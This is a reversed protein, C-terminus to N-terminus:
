RNQNLWVDVEGLVVEYGAERGDGEARAATDPGESSRASRILPQLFADDAPDRVIGTDRTNAEAAGFFRLALAAEGMSAALGSAVELASQGVPMSRTRRAIAIIERLASRAESYAARAVYTMALNLLGIAVLEMDDLRRGLTVVEDYLPEAAAVDGDARHMQAVANLASALKRQDGAQRALALAEEAHGRAAELRGRGLEAFGLSELTAIIQERDGLERAIALSEELFRTAEDYEGAFSCFLGAASLAVSRQKDRMQAGPHLLAETTVRKGLPLLGSRFWYMQMSNALRLGKAGAGASCGCYSHASLLNEQELDLRARWVPQDPGNQHSEAAEALTLHFDLHRECAASEEGSAELKERAYSRITELLRYRGGDPEVAVLSKDVLSAFLALVDRKDVGEGTSVAEAGDMTWGGAFVSLRRFVAREQLSLLDHSWDILARLTQQRPLATRSGTSLLRFRDNLRAAITEVPMARVRAAALEIALPIGDLHRCIDAITRGNRANLAFSPLVASAREAFLRVAPYRSYTPDTDPKDSEPVGLTPVPYIVEGSIRLPERSSALLTVGAAERLLRDALTACAGVLHECNDLVLLLRKDTAWRSVVDVLSRGSEEAVGLVKAVAHTVASQDAIPALEVFWVGDPYRDLTDAAVQLVLRTKGIGGVGVLTLLRARMLAKAVEDLERERGVFSTAHQPLNNPTRELSRLAPFERRLSPHQLQYLREPGALDKLRVPGLERLSVSKPLRDTVLDATAQSLLVQGGHAASMIRAARNVTNGFYDEDRHQAAGVHIGCRARLELDATQAKDAIAQQFDLTAEVAHLPDDFIACMGDGTMKVIRGGRTEVVFRAVHDHAALARQMRAPEVEWLRTSGEIDTFLFTSIFRSEDM